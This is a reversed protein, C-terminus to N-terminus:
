YEQYEYKENMIEEYEEATIGFAGLLEESNYFWEDDLARQIGNAAVIILKEKTM